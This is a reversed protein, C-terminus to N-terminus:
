SIGGQLGLLPAVTFDPQAVFTTAGQGADRNIAIRDAVQDVEYRAGCGGEDAGHAVDTLCGYLAGGELVLAM